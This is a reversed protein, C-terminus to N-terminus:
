LGCLNGQVARLISTQILEVTGKEEFDNHLSRHTNPEVWWTIQHLVNVMSSSVHALYSHVDELTPNLHIRPTSFHIHVVLQLSPPRADTPSPCAPKTPHYFPPDKMEPEQFTVLKREVSGRTEQDKNEKPFSGPEVEEESGAARHGVLLTSSGCLANCFQSHSRQVLNGVAEFVLKCFHSLVKEGAESVTGVAVHSPKTAGASSGSLTVSHSDHQPTSKSSDKKTLTKRSDTNQPGRLFTLQHYPHSLPPTSSSSSSSFALSIIEMVASQVTAIDALLKTSRDGISTAMAVSFERPHQLPSSPLHLLLLHTFPPPLSTLSPPLFPPLSPPLSPLWSWKLQGVWVQRTALEVDFLSAEEM